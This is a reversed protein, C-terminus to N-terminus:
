PHLVIESPYAIHFVLCIPNQLGLVNPGMFLGMGVHVKSTLLRFVQPSWASQFSLSSLMMLHCLFIESDLIRAYLWPFPLSPIVSPSSGAERMLYPSVTM